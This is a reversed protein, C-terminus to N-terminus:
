EHTRLFEVSTESRLPMRFAEQISCAVWKRLTLYRESDSSDPDDDVYEDNSPTLDYDFM